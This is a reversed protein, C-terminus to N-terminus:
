QWNGYFQDAERAANCEGGALVLYVTSSSFIATKGTPAYGRPPGNFFSEPFLYVLKFGTAPDPIGGRCFLTVSLDVDIFIGGESM